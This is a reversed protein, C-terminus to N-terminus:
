FKYLGSVGIYSLDDEGMKDDSGINRIESYELRVAFQSNIDYKAGIGYSSTTTYESGDILGTGKMGARVFGVRVFASLEETIPLHPLIHVGFSHTDYGGKSGLAKVEARGYDHYELEAAIYKNFQIGGGIKWSTDKDDCSISVGYPALLSNAQSQGKCANESEAQGVGILAYYQLSDTQAEAAMVTNVSLAMAVALVTKNVYKM